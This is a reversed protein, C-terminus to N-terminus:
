KRLAFPNFPTAYDYVDVGERTKLFGVVLYTLPTAIVEYASKTLWQVLIMNVLTAPPM